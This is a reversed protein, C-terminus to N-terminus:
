RPQIRVPVPAESQEMSVLYENGEIDQAGPRFLAQPATYAPHQFLHATFLMDWYILNRFEGPVFYRLGYIPALKVVDHNDNFERIALRAGTFESFCEGMIDEFFYTVRPLLLQHDGELLKLGEKTSSYLCLDSAVFSIPAPATALFASLTEQIMGLHLQAHCLRSRIAEVDPAFMGERWLNPCDRYDRPRPIHQGTDFGHVQIEIQALEQVQGAIHELAVLGNGGAVGLELVSVRPLGLVKGLAAGQLVGWIYNPKKACIPDRMLKRFSTCLWPYRNDFPVEQLPTLNQPPADVADLWQKVGRLSQKIIRRM